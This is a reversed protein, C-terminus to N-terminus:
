TAEGRYRRFNFDHIREPIAVIPGYGNIVPGANGGAYVTDYWKYDKGTAHEGSLKYAWKQDFKAAHRFRSSFQYQSGASVSVTTGSYKRPDKTIYNFLANHANPGYLASQPGLVIEIREIDDKNTSGNNFLAIGGSAAAMSNRGDVLQLVKNNFASNIGRANFTIEDVGRRQYQVGQVKSVLESVNSGAFQEMDKVGIVHISAPANTIKESRKTASVVIENGVKSDLSLAANVTTTNGNSVEAILEITEYGVYSIVLIIKGTNVKQFIFYGENNTIASILSGKTTVTAGLLAENTQKDTIKGSISGTTQSFLVTQLISLLILLSIKRM